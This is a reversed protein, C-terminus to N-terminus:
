NKRMLLYLHTDPEIHQIDRAEGKLKMLLGGFSVYISVVSYNKEPQYKYVRGYMVYDYNDMLSPKDDTGLTPDYTDKTKKSDVQKSPKIELSTALSITLKDNIEVPFIDTNIDIILEMEDESECYLRSVKDFKKGEPDINKVEFFKDELVVPGSSSM